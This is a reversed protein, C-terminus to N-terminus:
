SDDEYTFNVKIQPSQLEEVKREMEKSRPVEMKGKPLQHEPFFLDIIFYGRRIEFVIRGDAIIMGGNPFELPEPMLGELAERPIELLPETPQKPDKLRNLTPLEKTHSDRFYYVESDKAWLFVGIGSKTHPLFRFYHGPEATYKYSHALVCVREFSNELVRRIRVNWVVHKMWDVAYPEHWPFNRRQMDLVHEGAAPDELDYFGNERLERLASEIEFKTLAM